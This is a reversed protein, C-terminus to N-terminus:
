EKINRDALIVAQCATLQAVVEDARSALDVLFRAAHESLDARTEGDRGSATAAASPMASGGTAPCAAPISLRRAGSRLDAIVRDKANSTEKLKRQLDASIKAQANAKDREDARVQAERERIKTATAANIEAERKQWVAETMAKGDGRGKLYSGALLALGVAAIVVYLILPSFGLFGHQRM